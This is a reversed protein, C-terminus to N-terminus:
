SLTGADSELASIKRSKEKEFLQQIEDTTYQESEDVLGRELLYQYKKKPDDIKDYNRIYGGRPNSQAEWYARAIRKLSSPVEEFFPSREFFDRVISDIRHLLEEDNIEVYYFIWGYRRDDSIVGTLKDNLSDVFIKKVDGDSINNRNRKIEDFNERLYTFKAALSDIFQDVSKRRVTVLGENFYYGLYQFGDGGEVPDSKEKNISLGGRKNLETGLKTVISSVSENNWYFIIDDVYREYFNVEKKMNEDLGELCIEALINSISLGQPVGRRKKYKDKEDARYNKPVTPTKVARMVLKITKDSLSRSEIKSKIYKYEIDSYFSKVDAKYIKEDKSKESSYYSKTRRIVQNPLSRNVCDDFEDHLIEKLIFLVVRDRVTPISIVRPKRNRGRSKLVQRYPTFTYDGNTCKRRIISFQEDKQENFRTPSVGDMGTAGRGAIEEEYVTMLNKLSFHTDFTDSVEDEM